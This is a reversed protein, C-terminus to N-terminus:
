YSLLAECLLNRNCNLGGHARETSSPTRAPPRASPELQPNSSSNSSLTRAPPELQLELQPNSTPNSNLIRAPFELQTRASSELQLTRAPPVFTLPLLSSCFFSTRFLFVAFYDMSPKCIDDEVDGISLLNVINKM